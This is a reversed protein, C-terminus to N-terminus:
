RAGLLNVGSLIGLRRLVERNQMLQQQLNFFVYLPDNARTAITTFFIYEGITVYGIHVWWGILLMMGVRMVQAAGERIVNQYILRQTEVKKTLAAFEGWARELQSVAEKRDDTGANDHLLNEFGKIRFEVERLLRYPANLKSEMLLTIVMDITMGCVLILGLTKSIWTLIILLILGRAVFLPDRLLSDVLPVAVDRGEQAAPGRDRFHPPPGAGAIGRGRLCLLSMHKKLLPRFYRVTYIERFLPFAIGYPLAIAMVPFVIAEIIKAYPEKGVFSDVGLALIYPQATDWIVILLNAGAIIFIQKRFPAVLRWLGRVIVPIDTRWGNAREVLADWVSRRTFEHPIEVM